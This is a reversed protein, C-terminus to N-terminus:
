RFLVMKKFFFRSIKPILRQTLFVFHTCAHINLLCDGLQASFPIDELRPEQVACLGLCSIRKQPDYRVIWASTRWDPCSEQCTWVAARSGLVAAHLGRERAIANEGGAVQEAGEPM